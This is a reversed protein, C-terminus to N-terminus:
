SAGPQASRDAGALLEYLDFRCTGCGLCARTVDQIEAISGAGADIATRITARDVLMCHCVTPSDGTPRDPNVPNVTAVDHQQRRFAPALPSDSGVSELHRTTSLPHRSLIKNRGFKGRVLM